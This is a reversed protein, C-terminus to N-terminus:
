LTKGESTSQSHLQERRSGAPRQSPESGTPKRDMRDLTINEVQVTSDFNRESAFANPWPM